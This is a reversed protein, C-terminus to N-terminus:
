PTGDMHVYPTDYELPSASMDEDNINEGDNQAGGVVVSNRMEVNNMTRSYNLSNSVFWIYGLLCCVLVAFLGFGVCMLVVLDTDYKIPNTASFAVIPVSPCANNVADGPRASSSSTDVHFMKSFHTFGNICNVFLDKGGVLVGASNTVCAPNTTVHSVVNVTMWGNSTSFKTVANVLSGMVFLYKGDDSMLIGDASAILASNVPIEAVTPGATADLNSLRYLKSDFGSGDKNAGIVGVVLIKNVPDYVIGDLGLLMASTFFEPKELYVSAIGQADIKYIVPNIVDTAYINGEKDQTVDNIFINQDKQYVDKLQHTAKTAGSRADLM